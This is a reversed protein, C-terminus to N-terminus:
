ESSSWFGSPRYEGRFQQVQEPLMLYVWAKGLPQHNPTFAPRLQRQYENAQPLRDSYYDELEDLAALLKASYFSLLVGQVWDKGETVAPYGLPLHYLCGRIMAPTHAIAYGGCVSLFNAEGPKLTGYVFVRIM